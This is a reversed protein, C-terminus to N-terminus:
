IAAAVRRPKTHPILPPPPVAIGFESGLWNISDDIFESMRKMGMEVTSGVRRGIPKNTVPHCVEEILLKGKILEHAYDVTCPMGNERLFEAFATCVVGFYYARQQDSKSAQAQKLTVQYQGRLGHLTDVLRRRETADALNVIWKFELVASRM